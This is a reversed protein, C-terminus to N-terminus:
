RQGPFRTGPRVPATGCVPCPPDTCLRCHHWTGTASDCTSGAPPQVQYHQGPSLGCNPGPNPHFVNWSWRRNQDPAPVERDAYDNFVTM